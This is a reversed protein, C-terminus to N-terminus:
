WTWGRPSTRRIRSTARATDEPHLSIAGPPRLLRETLDRPLSRGPDPLANGRWAVGVHHGATAAGFLYPPAAARGWRPLSMALAWDDHLIEAYAQAAESLRLSRWLLNALNLRAPTRAPRAAVARRLLAEAESVAGKARQISGLNCLATADERTALIARYASEAGDVDGARHLAIAGVLDTVREVAPERALAIPWAPAEIGVIM